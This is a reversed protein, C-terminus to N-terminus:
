MEEELEADQRTIQHPTINTKCAVVSAIYIELQREYASM